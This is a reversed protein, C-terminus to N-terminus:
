QMGKSYASLVDQNKQLFTDRVDFINKISMIEDIMIIKGRLIDGNKNTDNAEHVLKWNFEQKLESLYQFLLTKNFQEAEKLAQTKNPVMVRNFVSQRFLQEQMLVVQDQTLNDSNNPM